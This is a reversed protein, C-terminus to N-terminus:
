TNGMEAVRKEVKVLRWTGNPASAKASVSKVDDPKKFVIRYERVRGCSSRLRVGSTGAMRM